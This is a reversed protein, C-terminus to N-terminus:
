TNVNVIFWGGLTDYPDKECYYPDPISQDTVSFDLASVYYDGNKHSWYGDSNQRYFHYLVNSGSYRDVFLAIKYKGSPLAETKTTERLYLPGILNGNGDEEMDEYMYGTLESLTLYLPSTDGFEGDFNGPEYKILTSFVAVYQAISTKPGFQTNQLNLAYSWCNHSIRLCIEPEQCVSGAPCHNWLEEVGDYSLPTGYITPSTTYKAISSYMEHNSFLM